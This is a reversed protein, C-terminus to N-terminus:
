LSKVLYGKKFYECHRHVSFIPSFSIRHCTKIHVTRNSLGLFNHSQLGAVPTDVRTTIPLKLAGSRYRRHYPWFLALGKRKERMPFLGCRQPWYCTFTESKLIRPSLSIQPHHLTSTLVFFSQKWSNHFSLVFCHRCGGSASFCSTEVALIAHSHHAEDSGTLASRRWSDISHCSRLRTPTAFLLLRLTLFDIRLEVFM